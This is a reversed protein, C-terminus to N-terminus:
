RNLGAKFLNIYRNLILKVGRIGVNYKKNVFEIDCDCGIFFLLEKVNFVDLNFVFVDDFLSKLYSIYGDFDLFRDDFVEDKWRRFAYVGNGKIYNSYLSKLWDEKNRISVVIKADPYCVSYGKILVNRVDFSLHKPYACHGSILENSVIDCSLKDFVENRLFTTGTREFGVHIIM